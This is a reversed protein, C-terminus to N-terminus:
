CGAIVQADVLPYKEAAAANLAKCLLNNVMLPYCVSRADQATGNRPKHRLKDAIARCANPALVTSVKVGAREFKHAVYAELDDDMPQLDVRNCRQVIERIDRNQAGLLDALEPQGILCVGLQRRMGDEMEMFGKLHRLTAQPMRHAEEIVILNSYGDAVSAALMAQVQAFRADPSSKLMVGPALTRAIADAIAASKMAKGKTDNPEMAVIFPKIIRIPLKELRIREELEKRLTTKGSGSEGVIAVFGHGTAANLMAARVRRTGPSAFVDARTNIDDVFPNRDLKFHDLAEIELMHNQLLMTDEKETENVPVSPVAEPTNLVVPALKKATRSIPAKAPKEAKVPTSTAVVARRPSRAPKFRNKVSASPAPSGFTQQWAAFCASDLPLQGSRLQRVTSAGLGVKDAIQVSNLGKAMHKFVARVMAPTVKSPRSM